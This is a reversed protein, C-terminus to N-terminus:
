IIFGLTDLNILITLGSHMLGNAPIGPIITPHRATMKITSSMGIPPLSPLFNFFECGLNYLYRYKDTPTINMM